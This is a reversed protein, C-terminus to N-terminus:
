PEVDVRFDKIAALDLAKDGGLSLTWECHASPAIVWTELAYTGPGARAISPTGRPRGSADFPQVGVVIGGRIPDPSKMEVVLRAELEVQRDAPGAPVTFTVPPVYFMSTDNGNRFATALTLTGERDLPTTVTMRIRYVGLSSDHGAVALTGTLRVEKYKPNAKALPGGDKPLNSVVLAKADTVPVWAAQLRRMATESLTVDPLTTLVKLEPAPAEPKEPFRHLTRNKAFQENFWALHDAARTNWYSWSHGGKGVYWKYTVDKKSDLVKRLLEMQARAGDTDGSDLFLDFPLPGTEHGALVVCSRENYLPLSESARPGVWFDLGVAGVYGRLDMAGSLVSVAGYLNPHLLSEYFAGHGGSSIGCVGRQGKETAAPYNAEVFARLDQTLYDGWKMWPQRPSNMFWTAGGVSPCVAIIQFKGLCPDLANKWTDDNDRLGPLFYVVPYRADGAAPAGPKISAPCGVWFREIKGTSPSEVAYRKWVNPALGAAPEAAAAASASALVVLALWGAMLGLRQFMFGGSDPGRDNDALCGAPELVSFTDPVKESVSFM